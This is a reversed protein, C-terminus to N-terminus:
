DSPTCSSVCTHFLLMCPRAVMPTRLMWLPRHPPFQSAPHDSSALLKNDVCTHVHLAGPNDTTLLKQGVWGCFCSFFPMDALLLLADM